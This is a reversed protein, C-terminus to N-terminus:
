RLLKELIDRTSNGGKAQVFSLVIPVFKQVMGSDLGIKSFGNTLAALNTVGSSGTTTPKSLASLAKETGSVEPALEILNEVNPVCDGIKEFEGAGLNEKAVRMILGTGIRAQDQTVGLNQTLLNILEM